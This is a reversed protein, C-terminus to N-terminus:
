TFEFRMKPLCHRILNGDVLGLIRSELLRERIKAGVLEGHPAFVRRLLAESKCGGPGIHRVHLTCGGDGLVHRALIKKAESLDLELKRRATM